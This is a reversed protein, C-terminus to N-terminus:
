FRGFLRIFVIEFLLSLGEVIASRTVDQIHLVGLLGSGPSLVELKCEIDVLLLFFSLSRILHVFSFMSLRIYCRLPRLFSALRPDPVLLHGDTNSLPLLSSLILTIVKGSGKVCVVFSWVLMLTVWTVTGFVEIFRDNLGHLRPAVDVRVDM